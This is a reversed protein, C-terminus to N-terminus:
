KKVAILQYAVFYVYAYLGQGVIGIVKALTSTGGIGAVGFGCLTGVVMIIPIAIFLIGLLKLKGEYNSMLKAGLIIYLVFYVIAVLIYLLGAIGTAMGSSSSAHEVANIAAFTTFVLLATQVLVLWSCWQSVSTCPVPLGQMGKKLSDYIYFMAAGSCITGAISAYIYGKGAGIPNIFLLAISIIVGLMGIGMFIPMNASNSSPLQDITMKQTM